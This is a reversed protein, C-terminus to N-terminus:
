TGIERWRICAVEHATRGGVQELVPDMSNCQEIRYDCRTSFRCGKPINRLDPVIGEIAKLESKSPTDLRPISELLGRTYPHRPHRFLEKVGTQEIIRGAYMVIVRDCMEAIVGLDHTIFIISMNIDRQLERMLNLIQNQTTVDLATTPEDAILIDPKCALAMAIMVRQRMGGSLQHPYERLRKEPSPIGVRKLMETQASHSEEGSMGPFHIRYVEGLQKGIRQVPNLATMPEQFIMAIKKGRVSHMQRSSISLLDTGDYIIRGSDIRGSPKPLLRMISLAAVSKGCGSEGVLGLTEGREVEFSIHDLVNFRGDDTEFSTVLNDVGLIVDSRGM